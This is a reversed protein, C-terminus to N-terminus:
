QRFEEYDGITYGMITALHVQYVYTELHSVQNDSWKFFHLDAVVKLRKGRIFSM